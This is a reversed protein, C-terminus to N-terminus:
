RRLSRLWPFIEFWTFVGLTKCSQMTVRDWIPGRRGTPNRKSCAIFLCEHGSSSLVHRAHDPLDIPQGYPTSFARVKRGTWQELSQQAPLIEQEIAEPGLHRFFVHLHAHNGVEIGLAHLQGLQARTVYLSKLDDVIGASISFQQILRAALNIQAAYEMTPLIQWILERVSSCVAASQTLESELRALGISQSLYCLIHDNMLWQGDVNGSSVLFVAPIRQRYLLPAAIEVVSRYADDFTLLLPRAPLKGSVIDDLSVFDYHRQFYGIQREFEELSLSVRLEDFYISPTDSIHHYLAM